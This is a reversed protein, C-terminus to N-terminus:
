KGDTKKVTGSVTVKQGKTLDSREFNAVQINVKYIGDTISGIGCTMARNFSESMTFNTKIYGEIELFFKLKLFVELFYSNFFYFYYFKIFYSKCESILGEADRIDYFTVDKAQPTIKIEATKYGLYNIVTSNQIIIEFKILSNVEKFYNLNVAKCQGGDVHM